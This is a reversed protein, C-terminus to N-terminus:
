SRTMSLRKYSKNQQIIKFDEEGSVKPLGVTTSNVARSFPKTNRLSLVCRRHEVTVSEVLRHGDGHVIHRMLGYIVQIRCGVSVRKQRGGVLFLELLLLQLLLVVLLLKLGEVVDRHDWAGVFYMELSSNLLKLREVGLHERGAEGGRRDRADV